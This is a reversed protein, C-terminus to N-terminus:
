GRHQTVRIQGLPGHILYLGLRIRGLTPVRGWRGQPREGVEKYDKAATLFVRTKNSALKSKAVEHYVRM